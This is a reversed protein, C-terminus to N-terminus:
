GLIANNGDNPARAPLTFFFRSGPEPSPEVWIRGGHREVIKKCIALGIGSGPYEVSGHLRQFIGFIRDAYEPDIGIGNDNVSILWDGNQREARVRVEPPNDGRYKIANAILNQFLQGIQPGDGMVTPLDGRVVVGGSEKIVPKLDGVVRDCITECDAPQFTEGRTGLRSYVLLDKILRQMRTVGDVAFDIFDDADADLRGAYRKQLLETYSRVMRLPEQLDHSAVSAFQELESNSRKLEEANRKLAEEARKRESIDRVFDFMYNKGNFELYNTSVEVDIERGDKTLERSEFTISGGEKMRKWHEAWKDAPYDPNIDSVGMSLLEERSYGLMKCAADNVYMFRGDPEVWYTADGARDVSYQTLKLAEEARKRETIDLAFCFNFEENDFRTYNNSIELPITRGDKTINFSEVTFSERAKIVKWREPWKEASINPHIDWVTMSCLEEKSYGLYRCATENVYQFRGDPRTWFIAVGAKDVSFQTLRLAEEARKRETIDKYITSNGVWRGGSDFIPTLTISVDVLRSDKRRRQVDTDKVTKGAQTKRFFDEGEEMKEPPHIISFPKGLAERKSYGFISESGSNWSTIRGETDTTFIGDGASEVVGDMFAAKEEAEKRKLCVIAAAWIACIAFLHNLVIKSVEEEPHFLFQAATTLGTCLAAILITDRKRPSWLSALVAGVYLVDGAVGLPMVWDVAFSGAILLLYVVTLKSRSM